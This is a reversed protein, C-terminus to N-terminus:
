EGYFFRSQWKQFLMCGSVPKTLINLAQAQSPVTLMQVAALMAQVESRLRRWRVADNQRGSALKEARPASSPLSRHLSLRIAEALRLFM